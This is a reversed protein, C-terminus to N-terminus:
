LRGPDVTENEQREVLVHLHIWDGEDNSFFAPRAQASFKSRGASSILKSLSPTPVCNFPDDSAGPENEQKQLYELIALIDNSVGPM